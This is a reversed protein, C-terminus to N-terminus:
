RVRSFWEKAAPRYVLACAVLLIVAVLLLEQFLALGFVVLLLALAVVLSLVVLIARYRAIGARVPGALFGLALGFGASVVGVARVTSLYSDIDTSTAGQGVLATRLQDAPVTLTLLAVLILLVAAVLWLVYAVTVVRPREGLPIETNM